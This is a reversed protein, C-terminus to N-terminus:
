YAKANAYVVGQLFCQNRTGNVGILTPLQKCVINGVAIRSVAVVELPREM